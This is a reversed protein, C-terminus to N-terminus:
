WGGLPDGARAGSLELAEAATRERAWADMALIDDLTPTAVWDKEHADMTKEIVAPIGFFDIKGERFLENAKENAANLVCPMTGGKRGAKYALPICPYKVEDPAKFTMSGLKVFDFRSIVM